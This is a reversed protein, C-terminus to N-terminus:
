TSDVYVSAHRFNYSVAGNEPVLNRPTLDSRQEMDGISILLGHSEWASAEQQEGGHTSHEEKNICSISHQISAQRTRCIGISGEKLRM